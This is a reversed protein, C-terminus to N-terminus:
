DRLLILARPVTADVYRGRHVTHCGLGASHLLSKRLVGQLRPGRIEGLGIPLNWQVRLLEVQRHYGLPVRHVLAHHVGDGKCLQETPSGRRQVERAATRQQELRARFQEKERAPLRGLRRNRRRHPEAIWGDVSGLEDPFLPWLRRLEAEIEADRAERARVRDGKARDNRM